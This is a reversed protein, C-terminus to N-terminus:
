SSNLEFWSLRIRVSGPQAYIKPLSFIELFEGRVLDVASQLAPFEAEPRNVERDLQRVDVWAEDSISLLDDLRNELVQTQLSRNLDSM